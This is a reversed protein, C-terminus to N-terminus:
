EYSKEYTRSFCVLFETNGEAGKLPSEIWGKSQFGFNEVGKIIKELVEQHVKPDRVIGGSGVQSRRAEFQPKVLTVLTAEEKMANIVAPMVLLISIFSLDLTVLDVKQPLGSLYRLNTREIVCVRVDRRIKDAVQGYGVDVGYVYSAGYQLLCDTFGGTSLGSDLAVKGTVEVGLQEIAAELKYGARCVYKPIEATIEIVAKDSVPTGAKNVMKGNVYVKGQLIWSQIFSRSYQQFRELCIEDLRKKKKPIKLKESKAVAFSRFPSHMHAKVLRGSDCCRSIFPLKVIQLAM